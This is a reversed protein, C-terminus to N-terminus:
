YVINKRKITSPSKTKRHKLMAIGIVSIAGVLAFAAFVSIVIIATTKAGDELTSKLIPKGKQNLENPVRSKIPYGGFEQWPEKTRFVERVQELTELTPKGKRDSVDKHAKFLYEELKDRSETWPYVPNDLVYTAWHIQCTSCILISAISAIFESVKQRQDQTPLDPFNSAILHLLWWIIPGQDLMNAM